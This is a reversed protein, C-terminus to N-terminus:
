GIQLEISDGGFSNAAAPGSKTQRRIIPKEVANDLVQAGMDLIARSM